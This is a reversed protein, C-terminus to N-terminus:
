KNSASFLPQLATANHVALVMLKCVWPFCKDPEIDGHKVGTPFVAWAWEVESSQVLWGRMFETQTLAEQMM